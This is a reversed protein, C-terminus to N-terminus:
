SQQVQFKFGGSSFSSRVFLNCWSSQHDSTMVYDIAGELGFSIGEIDVPRAYWCGLEFLADESTGPPVLGVIPRNAGLYDSLKSALFLNKKIDAEILLLIDADYMLELSQVYSVNPVHTVTNAPLSKAASSNLMESAVSGILEIALMGQLDKRREYLKGIALFLPEPSRRGYLAGVYRLIIKNNKEKARKPYLEECFVHPLVATKHRIDQAHNRLMLELSYASSHVIFDANNVTNPEHVKNWINSLRNVELPNGLWPDSFQAVWRVSKRQKKVRVMVPNISHYPSWTIVASYQNLDLDMLHEYAHAHLVTMFDPIRSLLEYRRRFRGLFNNSPTLRTISPFIKEVYPLLSTDLPLHPYISGACLVDVEYGIQTMAAMTKFVVASMQTQM